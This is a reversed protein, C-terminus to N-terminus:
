LLSEFNLLGFQFHWLRFSSIESNIAGAFDHKKPIVKGKMRLLKADEYRTMMIKLNEKILNIKVLGYEMIIQHGVQRISVLIVIKRLHLYLGCMPFGNKVLKLLFYKSQVKEKPFILQTM